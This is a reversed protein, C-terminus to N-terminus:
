REMLRLYDRLGICGREPRRGDATGEWCGGPAVVVTYKYSLSQQGDFVICRWRAPALQTCDGDGTHRFLSYELADASVGFLRAPMVVALIALPLASGTIAGVILWPLRRRM